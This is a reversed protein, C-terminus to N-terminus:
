RCLRCRAPGLVSLLHTLLMHKHKVPKLYSEHKLGLQPYECTIRFTELWLLLCNWYRPLGGFGESSFSDGDYVEETSKWQAELDLKRNRLIHPTCVRRPRGWVYAMRM